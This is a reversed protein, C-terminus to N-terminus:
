RKVIIRLFRNHLGNICQVPFLCHYNNRVPQCRYLSTVHYIAGHIAPNHLLPSLLSKRWLLGATELGNIFHIVQFYVNKYRLNCYNCNDVLEVSITKHKKLYQSFYFSLFATWQNEGAGVTRMAMFLSLFPDTGLLFITKNDKRLNQNFM